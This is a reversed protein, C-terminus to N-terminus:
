SGVPMLVISFLLVGSTEFSVGTELLFQLLPWWSENLCLVKRCQTLVRINTTKINPHFHVM